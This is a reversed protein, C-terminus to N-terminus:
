SAIGLRALASELRREVFGRTAENAVTSLITGAFARTLVRTAAEPDLGRSRLYFLQAPDVQGTTSGHRCKVDDALIDLAPTSHVFAERSMLLNKNSQEADTGNAGRAVHVSGHFVGRAKHAALGRYNQRSTTHVADHSVTSHVDSIQREAALFVGSLFTEAGEDTLAVDIESRTWSPGIQFLSDSLRAGRGLTARLGDFVPIADPSEHLRVLDLRAGPGLSVDSRVNQAGRAEAPCATLVTIAVRGGAGVHVFNRVASLVGDTTHVFVLRIEPEISARDDVIVVAGDRFSARNLDHFAGIADDNEVFARLAEPRTSLEHSVAGLRVGNPREADPTSLTPAFLGDVFALVIVRKPGEAGRVAEVLGEARNPRSAGAPAFEGNSLAEPVPTSRWAEDRTTPLGSADFRDAAAARARRLWDPGSWSRAARTIESFPPAVVKTV